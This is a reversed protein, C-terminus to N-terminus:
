TCHPSSALSNGEGAWWSGWVGEPTEFTEWSFLELNLSQMSYLKRNTICGAYFANNVRKLENPATKVWSQPFYHFFWVDSTLKEAQLSALASILKAGKPSSLTHEYIHTLVSTNFTGHRREVAIKPTVHFFFSASMMAECILRKTHQYNVSPVCKATLDNDVWCFLTLFPLKVLPKRNWKMRQRSSWCFKFQGCSPEHYKICLISFFM